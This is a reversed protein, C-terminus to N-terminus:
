ADITAAHRVRLTENPYNIVYGLIGISAVLISILFYHDMGLPTGPKRGLPYAVDYEPYTPHHPPDYPGAPKHEHGHHHSHSSRKGLLAARRRILATIAKM